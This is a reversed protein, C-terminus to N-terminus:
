GRCYSTWTTLVVPKPLLFLGISHDLHIARLHRAYSIARSPFFSRLWSKACGWIGNAGLALYLAFVGRM